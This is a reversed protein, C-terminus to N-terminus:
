NVSIKFAYYLSGEPWSGSVHVIYVGDPVDVTFPVIFDNALKTTQVPSEYVSTFVSVTLSSPPEHAQVEVTLNDGTAVSIIDTPDEQLFTDGCLRLWCGSGAEGKYIQEQYRLRIVPWNPDTTSIPTPILSSDSIDIPEIFRFTSLIQDISELESKNMADGYLIYLNENNSTFIEFPYSDGSVKYGPLEDITIKDAARKVTPRCNEGQEDCVFTSEDWWEDFSLNKPNSYQQIAFGAESNEDNFGIDRVGKTTWDSLSEVITWGDPFEMEFGFEENRYTQWTSTDITQPQPSVTSQGECLSNCQELEEYGFPITDNGSGCGSISVCSEGNFYAGLVRACPGYSEGSPRWECMAQTSQAIPAYITKLVL